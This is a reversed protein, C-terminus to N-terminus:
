LGGNIVRRRQMEGIRAIQDHGAIQRTTSKKARWTKAKSRGGSHRGICGAPMHHQPILCFTPGVENEQRGAHSFSRSSSTTQSNQQGCRASATRHPPPPLGAQPVADQEWKWLELRVGCARGDTRNISEVVEDLVAREAAVDGPSSVFVRLIRATEPAPNM